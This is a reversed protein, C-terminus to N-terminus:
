FPPNEDSISPPPPPPPLPASPATGRNAQQRLRELTSAQADTRAPAPAPADAGYREDPDSPRFNPNAAQWAEALQVSGPNQLQEVLQYADGDRTMQYLLPDKVGVFHKTDRILRGQTWKAQRMVKGAYGNDDAMSLDVIDVYVADSPKSDQRPYKTYTDPEYRIPWVMILHNIMDPPNIYDSRRDDGDDRTASSTFPM